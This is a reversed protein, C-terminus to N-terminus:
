RRSPASWRSPSPSSRSLPLGGASCSFSSSWCSSCSRRRSRPSWSLCARPSSARPDYAIDYALGPPFEAAIARMTTRIREATGLANSGPRQSILLAVAPRRLLFSNAAYSLAGLEIRAVDRLKLVRGDATARVVIDGFAEPEQLRGLFTLNPQFAQDAIPPEGLQGGAIQINQARVAAVVDGASLGWEAMREPDLWVRMSYDRAGFMQVDGIGDLRLLRDRVQRLAYNSVYLQDYSDDPSTMYIVMLLDPSNKRTTVGIRRVEEPLRPTAVAVRNQVLVQAV